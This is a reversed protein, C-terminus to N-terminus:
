SASAAKVPFLIELRKELETPEGEPAGHTVSGRWTGAIVGQRDILFYAPVGRMEYLGTLEPSAAISIVPYPLPQEALFTNLKEPDEDISVTVIRLGKDGYRAALDKMLAMDKRCYPCWSAWFQLLTVQGKEISRAVGSLDTATFAPAASGLKVPPPLPQGDVLAVDDRDVGILLKEDSRDVVSGSLETGDKLKIREGWAPASLAAALAIASVAAGASRWLRRM